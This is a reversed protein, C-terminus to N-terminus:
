VPKVPKSACSAWLWFGAWLVWACPGLPIAIIATALLLAVGIFQIM